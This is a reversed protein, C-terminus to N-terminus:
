FWRIHLCFFKCSSVFNIIRPLSYRTPTQSFMLVKLPCPESGTGGRGQVASRQGAGGWETSHQATREYSRCEGSKEEGSRFWSKEDKSPSNGRIYITLRATLSPPLFPLLSDEMESVKYVSVSISKVAGYINIGIGFPTTEWWM